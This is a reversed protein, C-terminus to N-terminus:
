HCVMLSGTLTFIWQSVEGDCSSLIVPSGAKSTPPASLCDATDNMQVRFEGVNFLVHTTLSRPMVPCSTVLCCLFVDARSLNGDVISWVTMSKLSLTRAVKLLDTPRDCLCDGRYDIMGAFRLCVNVCVQFTM